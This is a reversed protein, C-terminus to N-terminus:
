AADAGLQDLHFEVGLPGFPPGHARHVHRYGLAVAIRQGVILHGLQRAVRDDDLLVVAARHIDFPAAVADVALDVDQLRAGLRDLRLLVAVVHLLAVAQLGGALHQHGATCDALLDAGARHPHHGVNGFHVLHLGAVHQDGVHGVGVPLRDHLTGRGDDGVAATAGAVGGDDGALQADRGHHAAALGGVDQLFALR